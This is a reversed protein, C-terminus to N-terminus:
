HQHTQLYMTDKTNISRWVSRVSDGKVSAIVKMRVHTGDIAESKKVRRIVGFSEKQDVEKKRGAIHKDRDLLKGSSYDCRRSDDDITDVSFENKAVEIALMLQAQEAQHGDFSRLGGIYGEVSNPTLQTEARLKTAHTTANQGVLVDMFQAREEDLQPSAGGAREAVQDTSM